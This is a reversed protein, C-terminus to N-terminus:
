IVTLRWVLRLPMWHINILYAARNSVIDSQLVLCYTFFFLPRVAYPSVIAWLQILSAGCEPGDLPCGTPWELCVLLAFNPHDSWGGSANLM